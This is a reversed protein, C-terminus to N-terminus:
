AREAAFFQPREGTERATIKWGARALLAELDAASFDNFYGRQRRELRQLDDVPLKVPDYGIVVRRAATRCNRLVAEPDHVHELVALLAAVDFNGPPFQGQNLDILVTDARRAM